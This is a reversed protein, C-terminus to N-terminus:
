CIILHLVFLVSLVAYIANAAQSRIQVLLSPITMATPVAILGFASPTSSPMALTSLAVAAACMNFFTIYRARSNMAYINAGVFLAAALLAALLCGATLAASVTLSGFFRYGSVATLADLSQALPQVFDGGTGWHLYCVALPGFMLGALAVIAERASRKFMVVALPVTLMLTVAPAYILPLLGTCLSGFFLPSFSYGNRLSDALSRMASAFLLSAVAAALSDHACFIGCAAIGYLPMTITTRVFYLERVRVVLGVIWGAAFWIPCAACAAALPHTQQWAGLRAGIFTATDAVTEAPYPMFHARLATAAIIAALSLLNVFPSRRVINM